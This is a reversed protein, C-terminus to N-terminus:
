DDGMGELYEEVPVTQRDRFIKELKLEREAMQRVDALRLGRILAAEVQWADMYPVHELILPKTSAVRYWAKSDAYPWSLIVGVLEGKALAELHAAWLANFSQEEKKLHENYNVCGCRMEFGKDAKVYVSWHGEAPKNSLRAM